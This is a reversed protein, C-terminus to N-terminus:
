FWRNFKIYYFTLIPKIPCCYIHSSQEKFIFINNLVAHFTDLYPTIEPGYKGANPSFVSLYWTNRRIWDSHRFIRVLFLEMNPCNERLTYVESHMEKKSKHKTHLMKNVQFLKNRLTSRTSSPSRTNTVFCLYPLLHPILTTKLVTPM